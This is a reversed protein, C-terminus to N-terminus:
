STLSPVGTHVLNRKCRETLGDYSPRLATGRAGAIVQDIMAAM